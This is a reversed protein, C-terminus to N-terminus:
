RRVDKRIRSALGLAVAMQPGVRRIYDAPIATNGLPVSELPNWVRTPKQFTGGLAQELGKMRSTGGTLLVENVESEFQNEFYDLSLQIENGLDDLALGVDENIDELAVTSETKINEAEMQGVGRRKAIANTLDNGGLYVERTFYSTKGVIVNINTKSGGIDVLGVVKPEEMRPNLESAAEFANGLAFSDVDIVVPQLNAERLMGLHEEVLQRKVAVLLIKMENPAAHAENEIPLRACDIVVEDLGFPIYKDAEYHIATKLDSDNMLQMTIYRVIVSRGSVATVVRNTRFPTERMMQRLVEAKQQEGNVPKSALQTIRYTGGCNELEVAKIDRSGIDLGIIHRDKKFFM